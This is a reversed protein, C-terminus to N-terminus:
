CLLDSKVLPMGDQSLYWSVNQSAPATLLLGSFDTMPRNWGARDIVRRALDLWGHSADLVAQDSSAIVSRDYRFEREPVAVTRADGVMGYEKLQQRYQEALWGSHKMPADFLFLVECPPFESLFRLIARLAVESTQTIRFRSSQGALDRLAGDNALLLPRELIASEVTIQVNHGDVMLRSAQWASGLCRKARRALARSQDFVGRHLLQRQLYSLQYRNGVLELSSRRPYKRNQLIFFDCAAQHLFQQLM